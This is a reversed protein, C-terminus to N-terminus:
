VVSHVDDTAMADAARPLARTLLGQVDLRPFPANGPEEAALLQEAYTHMLMLHALKATSNYSHSALIAANLETAVHQRYDTSYLQAAYPPISAPPAHMDIVFLSMTQELEKLLHPHEEGLPALHESAFALTEDLQGTRLLEITRLQQLHFFLLPSTDM